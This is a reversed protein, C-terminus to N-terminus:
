GSSGDGAGALERSLARALEAVYVQGLVEHHAGPVDILRLDPAVRRWTHMLHQVVPIRRRARFYAVAGAYEGPQHRHYVGNSRLFLRGDPDLTGPRFRARLLEGLTEERMTPALLAARNAVAYLGREAPRLGGAPPLVDLMVLLDVERGAARLLRAAEFAVLGGFSFGGLRLTGDPAARQVADAAAEAIEAITRAGGDPRDLGPRVGCVPGTDTLLLALPCYLDVDGWADLFFFLPPLDPRGPALSVVDSADEIGSAGRVAADLGALTPDGLFAEM